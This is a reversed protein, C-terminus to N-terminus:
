QISSFHFANLNAIAGKSQALFSDRGPHSSLQLLFWIDLDRQHFAPESFEADGDIAAPV